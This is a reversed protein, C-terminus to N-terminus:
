PTQKYFNKNTENSLENGTECVTAVSVLAALLINSFNVRLTKHLLSHM